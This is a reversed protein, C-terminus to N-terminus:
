SELELGHRSYHIHVKYLAHSPPQWHYVNDAIRPPMTQGVYAQTANCANQTRMCNQKCGGQTDHELVEDLARTDESFPVCVKYAIKCDQCLTSAICRLPMSHRLNGLNGQMQM